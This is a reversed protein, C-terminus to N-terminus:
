SAVEQPHRGRSGGRIVRINRFRTRLGAYVYNSPSMPPVSVASAVDWRSEFLRRAVRQVFPRDGDAYSMGAVDMASRGDPLRRVCARMANAVALTVVVCNEPSFDVTKDKRVIRMGRSWGNDFGWREYNIYDCWEPCVRVGTVGNRCNRHMNVWSCYLPRHRYRSPM